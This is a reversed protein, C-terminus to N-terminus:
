GSRCTGAASTPRRRWPPPSPTRPPTRRRRVDVVGAQRAVPRDAQAGVPELVGRPGALGDRWEQLRIRSYRTTLTPARVAFRRPASGVQRQLRPSTSRARRGRRPSSRSSPGSRGRPRRGSPARVDREVLGLDQDGVLVNVALLQLLERSQRTRRGSGPRRADFAAAHRDRDAAVGLQLAHVDDGDDAQLARDCLPASRRARIARGLVAVSRSVSDTPM